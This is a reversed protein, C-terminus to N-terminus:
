VTIKGKGDVSGTNRVNQRARQYSEESLQQLRDQIRAAPRLTYEPNAPVPVASPAHLLSELLAKNEARLRNVEEELFKTYRSKWIM